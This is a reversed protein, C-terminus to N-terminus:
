YVDWVQKIVDSLALMANELDAANLSLISLAEPVIQSTFGMRACSVGLINCVIDGVHVLAAIEQDTVACSPTHHQSIAEILADPLQWATALWLGAKAHSCGFVEEEAEEFTKAENTIIYLVRGFRGPAYQALIVKGIDHLLGAVFAVEPDVRGTDRALFECTLGCALAHRFLDRKTLFGTSAKADHITELLGMFVIRRLRNIGLLIVAQSINTIRRPIGFYASNCLRLINATLSADKYIAETLEDFPSDDDMLQLLKPAIAAVSSLMKISSVMEPNITVADEWISVATSGIPTIKTQGTNMDLVLRKGFLGGVDRALLDIGHTELLQSVAEINRKGFDLGAQERPRSLVEAGGAMWARLREKRGGMAEIQQILLPVATVAYRTPAANMRDPSSDPLLIHLMGGIGAESDYLAVGVCSGLYTELVATPDRTTLLEGPIIVLTPSM